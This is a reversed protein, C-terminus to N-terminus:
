RRLLARAREEDRRHVYIRYTYASDARINPAGHQRGAALTSNTKVCCDVGGAQLRSRIQEMTQMQQTVAIERRNWLAIM